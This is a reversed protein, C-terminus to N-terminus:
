LKRAVAQAAEVLALLQNMRTPKPLAVHYRTDPKVTAGCPLIAIVMTRPSKTIVKEAGTAIDGNRTDFDVVAADFRGARLCEDLQGSDVVSQVSHGAETLVETLLESFAADEVMVLVRGKQAAFLSSAIMELKM